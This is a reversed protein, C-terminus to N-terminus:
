TEKLKQQMMHVKVWLIFAWGSVDLLEQQLENLLSSPSRSFSEDGYNRVGLLLRDRVLCEYMPWLRCVADSSVETKKEM